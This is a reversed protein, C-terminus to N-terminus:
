RYIYEFKLTGLLAHKPGYCAEKDILGSNGYFFKWLLYSKRNMTVSMKESLRNQPDYDFLFDPVKKQKDAYFHFIDTPQGLSNYKYYIAPVTDYRGKESEKIVRGSSDTTFTIVSFSADNKLRIMKLPKGTPDYQYIHSENYRFTDSNQISYSIFRLSDIQQPQNTDYYYYTDNVSQATSDTSHLIRGQDDFYSYVVSNGTEFSGTSTVAKKFDDYFEEVCHFNRSLENNDDYSKIQIGAIKNDRYQRQEKMTNEPSIIDQYYYQAHAVSCICTLLLALYIGKKLIM